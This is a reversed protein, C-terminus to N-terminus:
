PAPKSFRVQRRAGANELELVATGRFPLAGWLETTVKGFAEASRVGRGDYSLVVDGPRVGAYDGSKGKSVAIVVLDGSAHLATELLPFFRAVTVGQFTATDGYAKVVEAFAGRKLTFRVYASAGGKPQYVEAREPTAVSGLQALYREAITGSQAGVDPRAREKVFQQVSSGDLRALVEGLLRVIADQRAATIVEEPSGSKAKGVLTVSEAEVVVGRETWSPPATPEVEATAVVAASAAPAASVVASTTSAVSKTSEAGGRSLALAGVIGLAAVGGIAALAFPAPAGRKVTISPNSASLPRLAISSPPSSDRVSPPPVSARPKGAPVAAEPSKGVLKALDPRKIDLHGNCRKCTVRPVVGQSLEDGHADVSLLAPRTLNCSVCHADLLASAVLIRSADRLPAVKELVAQPCRVITTGVVDKKITSLAAVLNEIAVASVASVSGFDLVLSGEVGELIRKWRVDGDLKRHIRVRTTEGEVTKDVADRHETPADRDHLARVVSAMEDSPKASVHPRAFAFYGEADDDFRGLGHCNPCPCDPPSSALLAGGDEQLTFLREFGEGCSSCMYPGYFSAVAGSGVFKRIMGLQAVVAESCRVFALETVHKATSLMALWERVGYSTVREVGDLDFVVPGSLKAGVGDGGFSESIRGRISVVTVNGIKETTVTASAAGSPVLIPRTTAMRPLSQTKNSVSPRASDVFDLSPSSASSDDSLAVPAEARPRAPPSARHASADETRSKRVVKSPSESLVTLTMTQNHLDSQGEAAFPSIEGYSYFGTIAAKQEAPLADRVAELEDETRDGLVLRRGVCSVALVLSERGVAKGTLNAMEAARAAGGVLREFDARMLQVLHGKPVDGAFTLSQREHDVSLLTRVLIKDDTASERLALPFLLGSAPLESAKDGLYEKYLALAPKGDLEFLVNGESRTVVREPGFKDWGGRSGHGVVVHDGYFGVAAVLNSKVRSGISVWTRSFRSGDGSLGGTVVVNPDLSGNLGRVLESGNVNLGESLVLVAVLGPRAESLKRALTRGASFSDAASSVELSAFSLDTKEFAAVSVSLSRDHVETGFVEGASSCGVVISKPFAAALQSIPTPDDVIEPAGFALVLTRPSDLAPFPASWKKDAVRYLRSAVRLGVPPAEKGGALPAPVLAKTTENPELDQIMEAIMPKPAVPRITPPSAKPVPRAPAAGAPNTRRPLPTASESILTLTMTQNHLDSPTAAAFPSIEGYSYFGTLTTRKGRPSADRVAELEDETRDGLVLRRGVCSVALALSDDGQPAGTEMAMRMADSAGDVLRDFDARMLQVLHGRPVDGAFTLSQKERDVALLTRVLVRDDGSSKRMALPFLLGSAPLEKAKDGLYEEYLALAPKGDIEFLVNGESRTVVREPGFKDWGGKSGHGVMVHQGYLGVAAVLNPKVRAGVSVWTRSFRSGDGSLGGTVVVGPDLSGNLGRVLESGNVALGESLVIVAVLGPRAAALKKALTQGAVFSDAPGAVELSAFSLDTRDFRTVTVSLSRDHVETGYVEGASSCGIVISKSYAAALEKLPTPDDVIEPAGFALVLTRGSDLSRDLPTGFTRTALSYLSRAVLM